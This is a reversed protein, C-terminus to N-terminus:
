EKEKLRLLVEENYFADCLIDEAFLIKCLSNERLYTFASKRLLSEGKKNGQERKVFSATIQIMGKLFLGESSEKIPKWLHEWCEHAEWYYGRNFLDVGYCFLENEHLPGLLEDSCSDGPLETPRESKGPIYRFKPLPLASYRGIESHIVRNIM